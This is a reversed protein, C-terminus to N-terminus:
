KRKLAAAIAVGAVILLIVAVSYPWGFSFVYWAGGIGILVLGMTATSFAEREYKQPNSSRMAALALLWVGFLALVLPVFFEWGILSTTALLIAVVLIVCFAGITLLQRRSEAM